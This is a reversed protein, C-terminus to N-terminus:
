AQTPWQQGRFRSALPQLLELKCVGCQSGMASLGHPWPPAVGLGVRVLCRCYRFCEHVGHAGLGGCSWHPDLWVYCQM